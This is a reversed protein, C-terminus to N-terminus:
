LLSMIIELRAIAKELQDIEEASPSEESVSKLNDWRWTTKCYTGDPRKVLSKGHRFGRKWSGLCYEYSTEYTEPDQVVTRSIGTGHPFQNGNKLKGVNGLYLFVGDNDLLLTTQPDVYLHNLPKDQAKKKKNSQETPKLTGLMRQGGRQIRSVSMNIADNATRQAQAAAQVPLLVVLMLLFLRKPSVAIM